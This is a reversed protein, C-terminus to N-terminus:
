QKATLQSLWKKQRNLWRNGSPDVLHKKAEEKVTKSSQRKYSYSRCTLYKVLERSVNEATQFSFSLNKLPPYPSNAGFYSGARLEINTSIPGPQFVFVEINWEQLTVAWDFAISELAAKSAAYLGIHAGSDVARISSVFCIKGSKQKRMQHLLLQTLRFPGFFNVEFLEKAESVTYSDVPGACALGATHILCDIKNFNKLIISVAKEITEEDRFDLYVPWTDPPAKDQCRICSIVTYRKQVLDKSLVRGLGGSAGTILAIKGKM